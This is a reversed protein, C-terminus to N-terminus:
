LEDDDKKKHFINGDPQVRWSVTSNELMGKEELKQKIQEFMLSQVAPDFVSGDSKVQLKIIQQKRMSQCVFYAILGCFYDNFQVNIASACNQNGGQNAPEGPLWSLNLAKTGDSWKWTDRYLGIWSSGQINFLQLLYNQDSSNLSIALDTHHTRCYAQAQPWTLLPSTIGIFKAAGSFNGTVFFYVFPSQRQRCMARCYKQADAWTYQKM